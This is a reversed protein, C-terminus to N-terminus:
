VCGLAFGICEVFFELLLLLYASCMAEVHLVNPACIDFHWMPKNIQNCQNTDLLRLSHRQLQLLQLSFLSTILLLNRSYIFSHFGDLLLYVAHGASHGLILYKELMKFKYVNVDTKQTLGKDRSNYARQQNRGPQLLSYTFGLLLQCFLLLHDHGLVLLELHNKFIFIKPADHRTARTSTNQCESQEWLQEIWGM